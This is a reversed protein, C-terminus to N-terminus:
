EGEVWSTRFEEWAEPSKASALYRGHLAEDREYDPECSTFTAGGPAEVVGHV